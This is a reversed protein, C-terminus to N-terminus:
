KKTFTTDMHKKFLFFQVMAESTLNPNYVIMNMLFTVKEAVNKRCVTSLKVIVAVLDHGAVSRCVKVCGSKNYNRALFINATKVRNSCVIWKDSKTTTPSSFDESEGSM